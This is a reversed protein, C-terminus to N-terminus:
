GRPKRRGFGLGVLEPISPPRNLMNSQNVRTEAHVLPAHLKVAQGYAWIIFDAPKEM